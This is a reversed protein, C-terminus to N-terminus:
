FGFLSRRSLLLWKAKARGAGLLDLSIAYVREIALRM